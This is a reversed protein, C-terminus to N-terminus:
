DMCRYSKFWRIGRGSPSSSQGNVILVHEAPKNFTFLSDWAKGMQEGNWLWLEVKFWDELDATQDTESDFRRALRPDTIGPLARGTVEWLNLTARKNKVTCAVYIIYNCWYYTPASHFIIIWQRHIISSYHTELPQLLDMFRDPVMWGCLRDLLYGAAREATLAAPKLGLPRGWHTHTHTHTHTLSLSLLLHPHIASQQTNWESLCLSSRTFVLPELRAPTCLVRGYASSVGVQIQCTHTPLGPQTWAARRGGGGGGRQEAQGSGRPTFMFLINKSRIALAWSGRYAAWMGFGISDCHSPLSGPEGTPPAVRWM